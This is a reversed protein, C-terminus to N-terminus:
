FRPKSKHVGTHNSHNFYLLYHQSSECVKWLKLQLVDVNSLRAPLSKHIATRLYGITQNNTIEVPFPDESEDNSIWCNLVLETSPM